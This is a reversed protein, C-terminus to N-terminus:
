RRSIPRTGSSVASSSTSSALDISAPRYASSFIFLPNVKEVPSRASRSHSAASPTRPLCRSISAFRRSTTDIALRYM